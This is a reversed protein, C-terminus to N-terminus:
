FLNPFAPDRSLFLYYFWLTILVFLTVENSLQLFFNVGGGQLSVEFGFPM